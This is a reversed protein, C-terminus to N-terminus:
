CSCCCCCCCWCCCCWCCPGSERASDAEVGEARCARREARGKGKRLATTEVATDTSMWTLATVGGIFYSFIFGEFLFFFVPFLFYGIHLLLQCRCRRGANSRHLHGDSSDHRKTRFQESQLTSAMQSNGARKWLARPAGAPPRPRGCSPPRPLVAACRGAAGRCGPAGRGPAEPPRRPHPGRERKHLLVPGVRALWDAVEASSVARPLRWQPAQLSTVVQSGTGNAVTTV